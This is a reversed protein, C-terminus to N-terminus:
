CKLEEVSRLEHIKVNYCSAKVRYGNSPDYKNKPWYVAKEFYEEKPLWGLIWGCKCEEGEMEIRVFIYGDCKQVTNYAAISCDYNLQPPKKTTKTKVDYRLGCLVIDYDKTNEIRAQLYESVLEEGLFGVFNGKGSTISNKLKGMEAAKQSARNKISDSIELNIM